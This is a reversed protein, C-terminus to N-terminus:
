VARQRTTALRPNAQRVLTAVIRDTLWRDVVALGAIASAAAAGSTVTVV